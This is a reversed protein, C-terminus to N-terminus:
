SAIKITLHTDQFVSSKIKLTKSLKAKIEEERAKSDVKIVVTTEKPNATIHEIYEGKKLSLKSFGFLEDRINKQTNFTKTLSKKISNLQISTQPLDHKAIIEARQEQLATASTRYNVWDAAFSSFLLAFASAILYFEKQSIVSSEFSGLTIRNKSLKKNELYFSIEKKSETCVRPVQMILSNINVLSSAEDIGCCGDLDAFENQAFYIGFVKADKTFKEAIIKLIKDKDYAIIIFEDGRKSVEYAFDGEPLSGEYISRALKKAEFVRKVPLSVKKIWYFEPSLIVNFKGKEQVLSKDSLYFIESNSKFIKTM